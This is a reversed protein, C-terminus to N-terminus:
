KKLINILVNSIEIQEDKKLSCGSPLCLGHNFLFQSIPYKEKFIFDFSKYYPQLHMPKCIPRCEINLNEFIKVINKIDKFTKDRLLIVSLWNTSKGNEIEPMFEINLINKLEKKYINFVKRTKEVNSDIIRLQSVGIAALINSMRYNYGIEKHEYYTKNERSQTSLKKAKLIYEENNSLIMGGGSTTIIKNGNFSLISIDGFSGSKQKQYEAGFSEASDEVIPTNYNECIRKLESYNASQGYLNTVIVAKPSYIQFAKELSYSCMNWSNLDSDIFVPKANLYRISNACAVFTLDSCFVIDGSKVGLVKLALHLAATGSSLAAAYNVKLYKAVKREFIDIYPGVPAIWNSKIADEILSLEEGSLYPPSLYIKKRKIM